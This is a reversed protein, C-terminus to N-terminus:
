SVVAVAASALRAGLHATRDFGVSAGSCRVRIPSPLRRQRGPQTTVVMLGGEGTPDRQHHDGVVPQGACRGGGATRDRDVSMVSRGSNGSGFDDGAGTATTLRRHATGAMLTANRRRSTMVHTTDSRATCRTPGSTVAAPRDNKLVRPIHRRTARPLPGARRETEMILSWGPARIM